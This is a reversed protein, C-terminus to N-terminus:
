RCGNRRKCYEVFIFFNNCLNLIEFAVDLIGLLDACYCNVVDAEGIWLELQASYKFKIFRSWMGPQIYCRLFCVYCFNAFHQRNKNISKVAVQGHDPCCKVYDPSACDRLCAQM